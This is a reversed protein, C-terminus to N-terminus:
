SLSFRLNAEKDQLKVQAFVIEKDRDAVIPRYIQGRVAGAERYPRVYWGACFWEHPRQRHRLVTIKDYPTPHYIHVPVPDYENKVALPFVYTDEPVTDLAPERPESQHHAFRHWLRRLFRFM